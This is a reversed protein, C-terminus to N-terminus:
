SGASASAKEQMDHFRRAAELSNYTCPAIGTPAIARLIARLNIPIRKADIGRIPLRRYKGLTPTAAAGHRVWIWGPDNGAIVTPWHKCYKWHGRQHPDNQSDTVLSVFQNGRHTLLFLQERWFVYGTPWLLAWEGSAPAAARTRACFDKAIVDDDDIRSVIKRGHPLGWNEGYLKWESRPLAVVHCGTSEFAALREALYPDAPNVVIRIEPKAVQFILSPVATHKSINLRHRSLTADAYASQILIYHPTM